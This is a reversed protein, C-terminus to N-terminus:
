RRAQGTGRRPCSRDARAADGSGGGRLLADPKQFRRDRPGGTAPLGRAVERAISPGSLAVIRAAGTIKEIIESPRLLTQNEIGKTVSVLISANDSLRGMRMWTSRMYQCPVANVIIEPDKLAQHPDSTIAIEVPISFESISNVSDRDASNYGQHIGRVRFFGRQSIVYNDEALASGFLFLLVILSLKKIM